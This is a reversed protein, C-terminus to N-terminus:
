ALSEKKGWQRKTESKHEKVYEHVIDRVRGTWGRGEIAQLYLVDTTWLNINTRHVDNVINQATIKNSM